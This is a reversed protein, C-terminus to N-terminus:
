SSDLSVVVALNRSAAIKEAIQTEGNGSYGACDHCVQVLSVRDGGCVCCDALNWTQVAPLADYGVHAHASAAEGSVGAGFLFLALGRGDGVHLLDSRALVFGDAGHVAEVVVGGEVSLLEVEGALAGVREGHLLASVEM